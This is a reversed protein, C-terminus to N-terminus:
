LSEILLRSTGTPDIIMADHGVPLEICRWAPNEKLVSAFQTFTGTASHCDIFTKPLRALAAPETLRLPQSMTGYPHRVQRREVWAVDEPKSVGLAATPMPPVTGTRRGEEHQRAAREAGAYDTLAKGDEPVFADLYVLRRIRRPARDAAGTIVMGAYSHGVLVVDELEEAEMLMVVDQIHTDLNIDRGALHAREGLGTLTPTFVEHGAARLLPTVRKWCWGGHWAGHILVFTM